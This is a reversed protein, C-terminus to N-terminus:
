HAGGANLYDYAIKYVPGAGMVVLLDNARCTNQLCEVIAEFPHLHMANVGKARLRDVLDSSTVKQREEQSDRVFYIPPVIVIDAASFACAFEEMLHRTRSHQHPQFVCILRGGQEQPREAERLARLTVDIETPHHGYDDYIRTSGGAAHNREGVLQMRRDIGRFAALSAGAKAPDAGLWIALVCATAANVANHAGHLMNTWQAIVKGHHSLTVRRTVAEFGVLWDAQPNFGITEVMCDLGATVERRHANDHAILLKGGEAAAPVLSAFTAFSQVVEGLNAYIDLHDAEVSSICAIRPSYNHFSRNYECAEAVMVGPLGALEGAPINRAGLRFGVNPDAPTSALAGKTLQRSTAGVIVTPEIGCDALCCGLMATTTSKGHTGAVCVGTHTSMAKGLAEAYTLVPISRTQAELMQPHDAKVAASAVVLDCADPLWQKSQDFGVSIGAAALSETTESPERDSGTVNAGAAQLVRALGSMGCGGIGIMYVSKSRVDFPEPTNNRTRVSMAPAASPSMGLTDPLRHSDGSFASFFEAIPGSM